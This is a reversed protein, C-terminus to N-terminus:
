FLGDPFDVHKRGESECVVGAGVSWVALKFQTDVQCAVQQAIAGNADFWFRSIDASRGDRHLKHPFVWPVHAGGSTKVDLLGGRPLAMDDIGLRFGGTGEQFALAVQQGLLITAFTAFHNDHHEPTAGRPVFLPSAPLPFLAPIRVDLPVSAELMQGNVDGGARISLQGTVEDAQYVVECTGEGSTDINIECSAAPATAASGANGDLSGWFSKPPSSAHDHGSVNSDFSIVEVNITYTGQPADLLRARVATSSQGFVSPDSIRRNTPRLDDVEATLELMANQVEIDAEFRVFGQLSGIQEDFETIFKFFRTEGVVTEQRICTTAVPFSFRFRGEVDVASGPYTWTVTRSTVGHPCNSIFVDELVPTGEDITSGPFQWDPPRTYALDGFFFFNSPTVRVERVVAGEPIDPFRVTTTVMGNGALTFDAISAVTGVPREETLRQTGEQVDLVLFLDGPTASFCRESISERVPEGTGNRSISTESVCRETETQAWTADSQFFADDTGVVDGQSDFFQEFRETRAFRRVLSDEIVGPITTVSPDTASPAAAAQAQALPIPAAESVSAADPVCSVVREILPASGAGAAHDFVRLVGGGVFPCALTAALRGDAARAITTIGTPLFPRDSSIEVVITHISAEVTFDFDAAPYMGIPRMAPQRLDATGATALVSSAITLGILRRGLRLSRPSAKSQSITM